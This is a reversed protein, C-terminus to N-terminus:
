GEYKKLKALLTKRSIGLIAAARTRNGRTRHLVERIYKEELAALSMSRTAAGAVVGELLGTGALPLDEPEIAPGDARIAAAEVANM